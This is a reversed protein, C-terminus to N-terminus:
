RQAVDSLSGSGAVTLSAPDWAGFRPNVEVDVPRNFYDSGATAALVNHRALGLIGVSCQENDLLYGQQAGEVSAVMQDTTPAADDPIEHDELYSLASTGEPVQDGAGAETIVYQAAWESLIAIQLADARVMDPTVTQPTLGSDNIAAACGKAISNVQATPITVGNVVAATAGTPACASLLLASGLLTAGRAIKHM